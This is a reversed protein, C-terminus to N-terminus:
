GIRWETLAGFIALHCSRPPISDGILEEGERRFGDLGIGIVVGGPHRRSPVLHDARAAAAEAGTVAATIIGNEIDNDAVADKHRFAPLHDDTAHLIFGQLTM